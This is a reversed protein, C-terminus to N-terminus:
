QVLPATGERGDPPINFTDFGLLWGTVAMGDNMVVRYYRTTRSSTPRHNSSRANWNPRADRKDRDNGLDPAKRGGIGAVSHCSTCNGKGDFVLKGRAVDGKVAVAAKSAALSRLYAV